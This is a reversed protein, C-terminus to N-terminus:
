SSHEAIHSCLDVWRRVMKSASLAHCRYSVQPDLEMAMGDIGVVAMDLKITQHPLRFSPEIDNADGIVVGDFASTFKLLSIFGAMSIKLDDDPFFSSQRIAAM